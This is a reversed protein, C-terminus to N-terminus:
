LYRQLISPRSFDRRAFAAFVLSIFGCSLLVRVFNVLAFTRGRKTRRNIEEDLRKANSSLVKEVDARFPQFPGNFAKPLQPSGPLRALAKALDPITNSLKVEQRIAALDKQEKLLPARLDLDQRITLLLQSPILLLYGICAIWARKRFRRLSGLALENEPDLYLGLLVLCGGLLPFYSYSILLNIVGQQWRPDALRVPVVSSGLGIVFLGYLLLGSFVCLYSADGLLEVPGPEPRKDPGDAPDQPASGEPLPPGSPNPSSFTM